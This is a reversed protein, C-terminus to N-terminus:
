LIENLVDAGETEEAESLQESTSVGATLQLLIKRQSVEVDQEDVRIRGCPEM